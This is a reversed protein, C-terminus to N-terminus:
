LLPTRKHSIDVSDGSLNLPMDGTLNRYDKFPLSVSFPKTFSRQEGM